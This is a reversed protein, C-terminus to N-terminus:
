VVLRFLSGEETFVSFSKLLGLCGLRPYEILPLDSVLGHKLQLILSLPDYLMQRSDLSSVCSHSSLRDFDHGTSM